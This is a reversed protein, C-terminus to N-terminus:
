LPFFASLNLQELARWPAVGEQMDGGRMKLGMQQGVSNYTTKKFRSRLKGLADRRKFILWVKKVKRAERTKGRGQVKTEDCKVFSNCRSCHM